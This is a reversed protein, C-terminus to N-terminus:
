KLLSFFPLKAAGKDFTIGAECGTAEAAHAIMIDALDRKYRPGNNLLGEGAAPQGRKACFREAPACVSRRPIRASRRLGEADL